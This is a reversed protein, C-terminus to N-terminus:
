CKGFLADTESEDDGAAAAAPAAAPPASKAAVALVAASAVSAIIAPTAVTAPDPAVPVSVPEAPKDLREDMIKQIHSPVKSGDFSTAFDKAGEKRPDISIISAIIRGKVEKHEVKLTCYMGKLASPNFPKSMDWGTWHHLANAVHYNRGQRYSFIRTLQYPKGSFRGSECRIETEFLLALKSEEGEGKYGRHVGLKYVGVCRSHYAGAPCITREVDADPTFVLCEDVIDLSM